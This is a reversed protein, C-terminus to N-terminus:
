HSTTSRVQVNLQLLGPHASLTRLGSDDTTKCPEQKRVTNLQPRQLSLRRYGQLMGNPKKKQSTQRRNDDGVELPRLTPLLHCM